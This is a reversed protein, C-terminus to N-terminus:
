MGTNLVEKYAEVVKNRVQLTLKMAVEAKSLTIMTEHINKSKGTVLDEIARDADNQMQNVEKISESLTDAFSKGEPKATPKPLKLASGIPEMNGFIKLDAM